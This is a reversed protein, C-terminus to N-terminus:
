ALKKERVSVCVVRRGSFKGHLIDGSVQGEGSDFNFANGLTAATWASGAHSSISAPTAFTIESMVSAADLPASMIPNGSDNM